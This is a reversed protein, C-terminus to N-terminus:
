GSNADSRITSLPPKSKLSISNSSVCGFQQQKDSELLWYTENESDESDKTEEPAIKLQNVSKFEEQKQPTM